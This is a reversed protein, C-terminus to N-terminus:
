PRSIIKPHALSGNSGGLLFRGEDECCSLPVKFGVFVGLMGHCKAGWSRCGELYGSLERSMNTKNNNQQKSTPQVLGDSFFALTLIASCRGGPNPDFFGFINSNGSDKM